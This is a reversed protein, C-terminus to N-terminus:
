LYTFMCKSNPRLYTSMISTVYMGEAWLDPLCHLWVSLTGKPNLISGGIQLHYFHALMMLFTHTDMFARKYVCLLM